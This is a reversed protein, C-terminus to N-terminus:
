RLDLDPPEYYTLSRTQNRNKVIVRKPDIREVIWGSSGVEDGRSVAEQSDGTQVIATPVERSYMIGVVKWGATVDPKRAAAQAPPPVIQRPTPQPRPPPASVAPAPPVLERPALGEIDIAPPSSEPPAFVPRHLEAILDDLARQEAEPGGPPKDLLFAAMTFKMALKGEAILADETPEGIEFSRVQVPHKFNELQEIFNRLQFFSGAADVIIRQQLVKTDTSALAALHVEELKTPYFKTIDTGELIGQLEVLLQSVNETIPFRGREEELSARTRTIRRILQGLSEPRSREPPLQDILGQLEGHRNQFEEWAPRVFIALGIVAFIIALSAMLRIRQNHSLNITM